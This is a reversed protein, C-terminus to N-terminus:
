QDPNNAALGFLLIDTNDALWSARYKANAIVNEADNDSLFSAHFVQNGLRDLIIGPLMKTNISARLFGNKQCQIMFKELVIRYDKFNKFDKKEHQLIKFIFRHTILGEFIEAIFLELKIVMGAQTKPTTAIIRLSAAFMDDSIQGIIVDYLGQMNDFYHHIMNSSTGAQKCIGRM